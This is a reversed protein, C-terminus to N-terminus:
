LGMQPVFEECLMIGTCNKVGNRFGAFSAVGARFDNKRGQNVPYFYQFFRRDDFVNSLKSGTAKGPVQPAFATYLGGGQGKCM